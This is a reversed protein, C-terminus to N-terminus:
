MDEFSVAKLEMLTGDEGIEMQEGVSLVIVENPTGLAPPVPTGKAQQIFRSVVQQLEDILDDQADANLNRKMKKLMAQMALETSDQEEEPTDKSM